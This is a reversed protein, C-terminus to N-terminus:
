HTIYKEELSEFEQGQLVGKLEDRKKESQHQKINRVLTITYKPPLYIRM